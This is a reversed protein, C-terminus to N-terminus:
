RKRREPMICNNETPEIDVIFSAMYNMEFPIILYPREYIIGPFTYTFGDLNMYNSLSLYDISDSVNITRKGFYKFIARQCHSYQRYLDKTAVTYRTFTAKENGNIIITDGCFSVTLNFLVNKLSDSLDQYNRELVDSVEEFEASIIKPPLLSKEDAMVYEITDQQCVVSQIQITDSDIKEKQLVRNGCSCFMVVLLLQLWIIMTKMKEMIM